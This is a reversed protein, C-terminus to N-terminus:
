IVNRSYKKLILPGSCLASVVVDQDAESPWTEFDVGTHYGSFKEPQVPSDTPSIKIGFSKKTVRARADALPPTLQNINEPPTKTILTSPSATQTNVLANADVPTNTTSTSTISVTNTTLAQPPTNFAAIDNYPLFFNLSYILIANIIATGVFVGVLCKWLSVKLTASVYIILDTPFFPLFSWAAIIPVEKRDLGNKIPAIRKQYKQAFYEDFGLFESFKYILTASILIGFSNILLVTLPPFFITSALTISLPSILLLGRFCIIVM